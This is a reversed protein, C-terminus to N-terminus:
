ARLHLNLFDLIYKIVSRSAPSDDFLDFAHPASAHNVLTLAKNSALAASVFHDISANVGPLEDRGARVVLLPLDPPIDAVSGQSRPQAFGFRVAANAVETSAGVDLMYGYCLAACRFAGSSHRLLAGLATPAHGSCAWLALRSADIGLTGAQQTLFQLLTDLDLAPDQNAYTIAALGSAATLQAWSVFSGTQKFKGTPDPFGSVFVVGPIPERNESAPPHYLDLTLSAGSRSSFAVDRQVQVSDMNPIRYVVRKAAIARRQSEEDM